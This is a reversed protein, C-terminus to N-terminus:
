RPGEVTIRSIALVHLEDTNSNDVPPLTLIIEASGAPNDFPIVISSFEDGFAAAQESKGARFSIPVGSYNGVGRGEIILTGRRALPRNFLLRAEPGVTWRGFDQPPWFKVPTIHRTLGFLEPQSLDFTSGPPLPRQMLVAVALAVLLTIGYALQNERQRLAGGIYSRPAPHHPRQTESGAASSQLAERVFKEEAV